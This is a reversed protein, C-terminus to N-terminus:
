DMESHIGFCTFLSSIIIMFALAARAGKDWNEASMDWYAFAWSVYMIFAIIIVALIMFLIKKM